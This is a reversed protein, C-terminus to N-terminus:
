RAPVVQELLRAPPAYTPAFNPLACIRRYWDTVNALDSWRHAEGLDEMRVLTPTLSIDALSYDDCAVWRSQALAADMRELCQRLQEFSQDIDGQPFGQPGMRLFFAKRLPLRDAHQQRQDNDFDKWARAFFRNFSPARIAVTPVEEIYRCWSRMHARAIPASPRLPLAPYADDLYETIASSDGIAVGGDALTPVVGNPNLALYAPQLHENAALNIVQADFALAKHYLALRVKQSCTSAPHHYLTLAM